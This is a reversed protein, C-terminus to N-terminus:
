LRENADSLRQQKISLNKDKNSFSKMSFYQQSQSEVVQEQIRPLKGERSSGL